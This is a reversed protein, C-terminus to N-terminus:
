HVGRLHETVAQVLPHSIIAAELRVLDDWPTAPQLPRVRAEDVAFRRWHRPATDPLSDLLLSPVTSWEAHLSSIQERLVPNVEFGLWQGDAEALQRPKVFRQTDIRLADQLADLTAVYSGGDVVPDWAVVDAFRAARAAGLAVSAGLRAGFAIVSDVGSRARLEAAATATNALCRNWEVEDSAGASDGCGYYDFRLVPMGEAALANGLQRYIRHCRIYDQGLPACLLVAKGALPAAAHYIGFLEGNDGFFFPLEGDSRKM